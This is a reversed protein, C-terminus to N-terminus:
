IQTQQVFLGRVPSIRAVEADIAPFSRQQDRVIRAAANTYQRNASVPRQSHNIIYLLVLPGAGFFLLLSWVCMTHNEIRVLSIREGGIEARIFYHDVLKIPRCSFEIRCFLCEYLEFGSSTRSM